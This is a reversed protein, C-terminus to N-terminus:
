LGITRFGEGKKSQIGHFFQLVDTVPKVLQGISKAAFHDTDAALDFFHNAFHSIHISYGVRPRALIASDIKAPPIAFLPKARALTLAFPHPFLSLPVLSFFVLKVQM